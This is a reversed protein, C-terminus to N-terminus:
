FATLLFSPFIYKYQLGMSPFPISSTSLNEMGSQSRWQAKAHLDHDRIVNFSIKVDRVSGTAFNDVNNEM